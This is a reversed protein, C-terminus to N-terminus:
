LVVGPGSGSVFVLGSDYFLLLVVTMTCCCFWKWLFFFLVVTMSCCCSWQCLCCCSWKWLIVVSGSGYFLLLVVAMSRDTSLILWTVLFGTLTQWWTLSLDTQEAVSTLQDACTQECIVYVPKRM